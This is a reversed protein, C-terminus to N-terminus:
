PGWYQVVFGDQPPPSSHASPPWRADTVAPVMGHSRDPLLIKSIDSPELTRFPLESPDAASATLTEGEAIANSRM